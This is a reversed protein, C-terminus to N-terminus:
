TIHITSLSTMSGVRMSEKAYQIQLATPTSEPIIAETVSTPDEFSISLTEIVNNCFSHRRKFPAIIQSKSTQSPLFNTMSNYQRTLVKNKYSTTSTEHKSSTSYSQSANINQKPPQPIAQPLNQPPKETYIGLMHRLGEYWNEESIIGKTEEHNMLHCLPIAVSMVIADIWHINPIGFNHRIPTLLAAAIALLEYLWGM